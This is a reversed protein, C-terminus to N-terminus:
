SVKETMCHVNELNLKHSRVSGREWSNTKSIKMINPM